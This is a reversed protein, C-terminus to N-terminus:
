NSTGCNPCKRGKYYQPSYYQRCKSCRVESEDKSHMLQIPALIQESNWVGTHDLASKPMSVLSDVKLYVEGSDESIHLYKEVEEDLLNLIFAVKEEKGHGTMGLFIQKNEHAYGTFLTISSLFALTTKIFKMRMRWKFFNFHHNCVM